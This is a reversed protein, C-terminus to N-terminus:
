RNKIPRQEELDRLARDRRNAAQREYRIYRSLEKTALEDGIDHFTGVYSFEIFRVERSGQSNHRWGQMDDILAINRIIEPVRLWWFEITLSEQSMKFGILTNRANGKVITGM